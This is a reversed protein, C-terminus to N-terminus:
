EATEKTEEPKEVSRAIKREVIKLWDKIDAIVETPLPSPWTIVVEGGDDLSFVENRMHSGGAPPPQLERRTWKLAPPVPPPTQAPPDCIELEEVPVGTKEGEVFGYKGDNSFGVVKKPQKFQEVGRSIWQVFKGVQVDPELEEDGGTEGIKDSETVKAFSITDRLEKIFAGIANTNFHWDNELRYQLEADSPLRGNYKRWIEAHIKPRLAAERIAADRESSEPRKDAVIKLGLPSVQFTRGTGADIEDLLGFSKLAAATVLAGSSKESYDWHSVAAKFSAPNRHEKEYFEVARKIAQQLNIGPYTPSRHKKAKAAATVTDAM